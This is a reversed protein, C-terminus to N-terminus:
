RQREAETWRQARSAEKVAALETQLDAQVEAAAAAAADVRALRAEAAKVLARAYRQDRDRRAQLYTCTSFGLRLSALFSAGTVCRPM